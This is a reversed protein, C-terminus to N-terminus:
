IVFDKYENNKCMYINQVVGDQSCINTINDQIENLWDYKNHWVDKQLIRIVSFGNDNACKIKYIDNVKTLEPSKWNGIQKFHQPGDLELIIKLDELVFDYPLYKNTNPNKCWKPKYQRKITYYESLKNYLLEESKNVCFPCWIGRTIDSIIKDFSNYCRDCNFNYKKNTSKFIHRPNITKNNLYKSREVSAFSNNYCLKCENDNCLKQHSCYSCWRGQSSINKLGMCIEHHCKDCNFYYLKESGKLVEIPKLKNKESWNISMPHSAFSKDYCSDCNNCLKRNYCYPCWNNAQNINLLSSEFSHGCEGCDFWIKKHSNLSYNEPSGENKNSWYKAKPHSAFNLKM